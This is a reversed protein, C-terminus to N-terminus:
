LVILLMSAKLILIIKQQHLFARGVVVLSLWFTERAIQDGSGRFESSRLFANKEKVDRDSARPSM